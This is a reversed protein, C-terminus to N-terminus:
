AKEIRLDFTGQLSSVEISVPLNEYLASKM